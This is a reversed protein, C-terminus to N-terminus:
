TKRTDTVDTQAYMLFNPKWEIVVTERSCIMQFKYVHDPVIFPLWSKIESKVIKDMSFNHGKIQWFIFFNTYEEKLNGTLL